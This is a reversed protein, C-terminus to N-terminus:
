FTPQTIILNGSLYNTLRSIDNVSTPGSRYVSGNMNVDERRYVNLKAANTSAGYYNTILTIDNVSAPGTRRTSADSSVNGGWLAFKGNSMTALANYVTGLPTALTESLSTTFDMSTTSLYTLNKTSASRAAVHNRHRV